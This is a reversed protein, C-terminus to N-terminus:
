KILTEMGREALGEDITYVSIESDERTIGLEKLQNYETSDISGDLLKAGLERKEIYHKILMDRQSTPKLAGLSCSDLLANLAEVSTHMAICLCITKNRDPTFDQESGHQKHKGTFYIRLMQADIGSDISLMNLTYQEGKEKQSTTFSAFYENLLSAYANDHNKSTAEINQVFAEPLKPYFLELGIERNQLLSVQLDYVSKNGELSNIILADRSINHDLPRYDVKGLAYNTDEVNLELALCMQVISDRSPKKIRGAIINRTTEPTLKAKAALEMYSNTDEIRNAKAYRYHRALFESLKEGVYGKFLKDIQTTGNYGSFVDAMNVTNGGVRLPELNAKDLKESILAPKDRLAKKSNIVGVIIKDRDNTEDLGTQGALSLAKNTKAVDLGLEICFVVVVDRTFETTKGELMLKLLPYSCYSEAAKEYLETESGAISVLYETFATM